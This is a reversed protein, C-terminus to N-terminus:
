LGQYSSLFQAFVGQKELISAVILTSALIIAIYAAMKKRKKLKLFMLSPIIGLLIAVFIGGYELAMYFSRECTFVFILPPILTSGIAIERGKKKDKLKLGDILFDSLSLAVGLFSTVISFFAFGEAVKMFSSTHLMQSLPVTAPVGQVWARTLNPLPVGGLVTVQWLIYVILPISGGIWLAKRLRKRDHELYTTLTPIIIHFGFSTMVVTLSLLSAKFDVHTLRDLVVISPAKAILFGYTVILGVMLLRNVYDALYTGAYVVGGLLVPLVFFFPTITLTSEPFFGRYVKEFLPASGAIYAALLSYLLGLYFIWSAWKGVTGLTHDAMSILNSPGRITLNVELLFRATLQMFIFSVFFILLSPLFGGFATSVPLALMGAGISTGAILLVAGIMQKNKKPM